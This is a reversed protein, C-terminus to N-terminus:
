KKEKEAKTAERRIKEGEKRVKAAEKRVEAAEKRVREGDKRIEANAKRIEAGAKRVKEGEKRAQFEKGFSQEATAYKNVKSAPLVDLMKTIYEAELEAEKKKNEIRLDLLKKHEAESLEKDKLKIREERLEKYLGFKKQQLEEEIPQFKAKEDDTLGMVKALHDIRGTKFKAFRAQKSETQEQKHTEQREQAFVPTSVGAMFAVLAFTIVEKKM